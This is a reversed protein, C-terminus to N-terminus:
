IHAANGSGLYRTALAAQPEIDQLDSRAKLASRIWRRCPVEITRYIGGSVVLTLAISCFIRAFVEISWFLTLPQPSHNFLRLVLLHVLYISYSADGWLLILPRSLFRSVVTDYRSVCFILVALAPAFLFDESLHNVMGNIPTPVLNTRLFGFVILFLFVLSLAVRAVRREVMSVSHHSVLLFCQASLCGMLFEFIRTYPSYYFVWQYFPKFPDLGIDAAKYLGYMVALAFLTAAGFALIPRSLQLLVFVLPVYAIYFFAETSVSWSVGFLTGAMLQGNWLVFFWSQTLTPYYIVADRIMPPTATAFFSDALVWVCLFCFYLPYLRAFRAIAFERVATPFPVKSFLDSYNYHIVFGSLVFFLPMGYMAILGGYTRVGLYDQFGGNGDCAHAVLIFFAAFFRLGTLPLLQTRTSM